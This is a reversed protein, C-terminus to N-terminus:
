LAVRCTFASCMSNKPCLSLLINWGRPVGIFLNFSSCIALKTSARCSSPSVSSFIVPATSGCNAYLLCCNLSKDACCCLSNSSPIAVSARDSCAIRCSSVVAPNSLVLFSRTFFQNVSEKAQLNIVM